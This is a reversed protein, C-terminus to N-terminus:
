SEIYKKVKPLYKKIAKEFEDLKSYPFLSCYRAKKYFMCIGNKGYIISEVSEPKIRLDQGNSLPQIIYDKEFTMSSKKAKICKRYQGFVSILIYFCVFFIIFDIAFFVYNYLINLVKESINTFGLIIPILVGNILYTLIITPIVRFRYKSKKYIFRKNVSLETAELFDRYKFEKSDSEIKM